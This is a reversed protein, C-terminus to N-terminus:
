DVADKAADGVDEAAAGAAAGAKKAADSADEAADDAVDAADDVADEVGSEKADELNDEAKEAIDDESDKNDDLDVPEGEVIPADTRGAVTGATGADTGQAVGSQDTADASAPRDGCATVILSGLALAAVGLWNRTQM